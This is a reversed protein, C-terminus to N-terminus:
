IGSAAKSWVQYGQVKGQLQYRSWLRVFRSDGRLFDIYDFEVGEFYSKNIRGDIFVLDPDHRLLDEVIATRANVLIREFEKCEAPLIHCDTRQKGVLAGPVLWQAPYRSSWRGRVENVFPFAASVNSSLVLISKSPRDVFQAFSDAYISVYPGREIQRGLGLFVALIALLGPLIERRRSIPSVHLLWIAGLTLFFTTPVIQYNWGKFQVLYCLVSAGLGALLRLTIGGGHKLIALFAGCLCIVGGIESRLLVGSWSSGFSSYVKSAIPVIAALYAPHALIIFALYALLGFGLGLNAPDIVRKPLSRIPGALVILTPILLFYPKLALGFAAILGIAFRSAFPLTQVEEGLILLFFYSLGFALMLHERQGFDAMPLVFLGILSALFLERQAPASLDSRQLVLLLLLSSIACLLTTYTIFAATDTLGTLDALWLAPVTLYFALPPNIEVIGIYLREGHLFM